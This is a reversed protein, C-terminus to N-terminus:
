STGLLAWTGLRLGTSVRPLYKSPSPTVSSHVFTKKVPHLSSVFVKCCPGGRETDKKHKTPNKQLLSRFWSTQSNGKSNGSAEPRPRQSTASTGKAESNEAYRSGGLFYHVFLPSPHPLPRPPPQVEQNRPHISPNPEGGERGSDSHWLRSHTSRVHMAKSELEQVVSTPSPCSPLCKPISVWVM